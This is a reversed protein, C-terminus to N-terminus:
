TNSVDQHKIFIKILHICSLYKMFLMKFYNQLIIMKM